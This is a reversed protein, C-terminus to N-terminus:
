KSQEQKIWSKLKTLNTYLFCNYNTCSRMIMKPNNIRYVITRNKGCNLCTTKNNLRDIEDLSYQRKSTNTRVTSIRM